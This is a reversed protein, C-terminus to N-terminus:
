TNLSNIRLLMYDTATVKSRCLAWHPATTYYYTLESIKQQVFQKLLQFYKIPKCLVPMWVTDMLRKCYMSIKIYLSPISSNYNHPKHHTIYLYTPHYLPSNHKAMNPYCTNEGIRVNPFLSQELTSTQSKTPVSSLSM